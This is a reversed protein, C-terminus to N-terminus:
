PLKESHFTVATPSPATGETKLKWYEKQGAGNQFVLYATGKAAESDDIIFLSPTGGSRLTTLSGQRKAVAMVHPTGGIDIRVEQGVPLSQLRKLRNVLGAPNLDQRELLKAKYWDAAVAKHTDRNRWGRFSWKDNGSMQRAITLLINEVSRDLKAAKIDKELLSQGPAAVINQRIRDDLNALLQPAYAVIWERLREEMHDLTAPIPTKERADKREQEAVRQQSEVVSKRRQMEGIEKEIGKVVNVNAGGRLTAATRVFEDRRMTLEEIQADYWLVAEKCADVKAQLFTLSHKARQAHGLIADLTADKAAVLSTEAAQVKSDANSRLEEGLLASATKVRKNSRVIFAHYANEKLKGLRSHGNEFAADVGKGAQAVATDVKPTPEHAKAEDAAADLAANLEDAKKTDVFLLRHERDSFHTQMELYYVLFRPM